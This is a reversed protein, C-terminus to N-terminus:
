RGSELRVVAVPCSSHHLLAQSTSGLLMGRVGGRGRCGVVVLQAERTQVLLSHAPRGPTIVRQVSVAPYKDQWGALREALVRQEGDEATTWDVAAPMMSVTSVPLVDSWAHLAILLVGLRSAQEFAFEVAAESSQSGDVGVVVPRAGPDEANDGRVVVVPCHSHAALAVAISGVLLGTFGGLGRSGLVTLQASASQAILTEAAPGTRLDTSVDVEAATERALEAAKRLAERGEDALADSFSRPASVPAHAEIVLCSHVLRLPANRRMAERAAWSVAQEASTSGDVGVVIPQNTTTTMAVGESFTHGASEGM